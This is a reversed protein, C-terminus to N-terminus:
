NSTLLTGILIDDGYYFTSGALPNSFTVGKLHISHSFGSGNTSTTVEIIGSTNAVGAQGTWEEKVLPSEPLTTACFYTSNGGVALALSFLRYSLRNENNTNILATKPTGL